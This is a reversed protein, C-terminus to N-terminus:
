RNLAPLPQPAAFFFAGYLLPVGYSGLRRWPRIFGYGNTNDSAPALWLLAAALFLPMLWQLGTRAILSGAKAHFARGPASRLWLFCPLFAFTLPLAYALCWRDHWHM